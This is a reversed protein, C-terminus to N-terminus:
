KKKEGVTHHSVVHGQRRLVDALHRTSKSNWLLPSQPDGRTSSELLAQLDKLLTPDSESL